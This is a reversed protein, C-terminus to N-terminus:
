SLRVSCCAFVPWVPAPLQAASAVSHRPTDALVMNPLWYQLTLSGLCRLTSIFSTEVLLVNLLGTIDDVDHGELVQINVALLVNLLSSTDGIDPGELM